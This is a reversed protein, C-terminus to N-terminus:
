EIKMIKVSSTWCWSSGEKGEHCSDVLSTATDPLADLGWLHGLLGKHLKAKDTTLVASSMYRVNVNALFWKWRNKNYWEDPLFNIFCVLYKVYVANGLTQWTLWMVTFPCKALWCKVRCSYFFVKVNVYCMIAVTMFCRPPFLVCSQLAYKVDTLLHFFRESNFVSVFWSNFMCDTSLSIKSFLM